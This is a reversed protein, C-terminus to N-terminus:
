RPGIGGYGQLIFYNIREDIADANYHSHGAISGALRGGQWRSVRILADELEAEYFEPLAVPIVDFNKMKQLSVM